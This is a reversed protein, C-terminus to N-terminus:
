WSTRCSENIRLDRDNEMGAPKVPKVVDACIYRIFPLIAIDPSKNPAKTDSRVGLDLSTM